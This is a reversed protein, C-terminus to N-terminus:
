AYFVVLCRGVMLGLGGHVVLQDEVTMGLWNSEVNYIMLNFLNTLILRGQTNGQTAKFHPDHYRNQRTVVDQQYWFM